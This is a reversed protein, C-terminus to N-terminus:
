HGLRERLVPARARSFAPQLSVCWAPRVPGHNSTSRAVVMAHICRAFATSQDVYVM